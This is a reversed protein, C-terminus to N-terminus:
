SFYLLMSISPGMNNVQYGSWKACPYDGQTPIIELTGNTPSTALPVSQGNLARQVLESSFNLQSSGQIVQWSANWSAHESERDPHHFKCNIGFKCIGRHM